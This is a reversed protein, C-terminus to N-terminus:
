VSVSVSQINGSPLVSASTEKQGQLAESGLETECELEPMM